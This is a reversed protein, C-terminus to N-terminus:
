HAGNESTDDAYENRGGPEALKGLRAASKMRAKMWEIGKAIGPDIMSAYHGGREVEVFTVDRNTKKLRDIFKRTVKMEMKKDDKAQFVFVPVTLKATFNIPSNQGIFGTFGPVLGEIVPVYKGIFDAISFM